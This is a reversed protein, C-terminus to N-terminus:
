CSSPEQSYPSTCSFQPFTSYSNRFTLEATRAKQQTRVSTILEPSKKILVQAKVEADLQLPSYSIWPHMLSKAVAPLNNPGQESTPTPGFGLGVRLQNKTM